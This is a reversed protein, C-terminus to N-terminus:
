ADGNDHFLSTPVPALEFNFMDNFEIQQTGLLLLVRSFILDTNYDTVDSRKKKKKDKTSTMLVVKTSLTKRFSDPLDPFEQMQVSGLQSAKNVNTPSNSEEETYTSLCTPHM